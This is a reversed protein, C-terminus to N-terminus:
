LIEIDQDVIMADPYQDEIFRIVTNLVQHVHPTANSVATIAIVSRQWKDLFDIEATAVNFQNHIRKLMSKIIGRKEKLSTIGPLYLEITCLGVIAHASM